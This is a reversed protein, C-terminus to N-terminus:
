GAAHYAVVGVVEVGIGVGPRDDNDVVIVKLFSIEITRNRNVMAVLFPFGANFGVVNEEVFVVVVDDGGVRIIGGTIGEVRTGDSSEREGARTGVEFLSGVNLVENVEAVPGDVGAQAPVVVREKVILVRDARTECHSTIKGLGPPADVERLIEDKLGRRELVDQEGTGGLHLGEFGIDQAQGHLGRVAVIEFPAGALAKEALEAEVRVNEAAGDVVVGIVVLNEVGTDTKWDCEIFGNKVARFPFEFERVPLAEGAEDAVGVDDAVGPVRNSATEQDADAVGTDTLRVPNRTRRERAM